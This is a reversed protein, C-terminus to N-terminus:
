RVATGLAPDPLTPAAHRPGSVAPFEHRALHVAGRIGASEIQEMDLGSVMAAESRLADIRKRLEGGVSLPDREVPFKGARRLFKEDHGRGAPPGPLESGIRARYVADSPSGVAAFDDEGGRPLGHFATEPSNGNGPALRNGDRGRQMANGGRINRAPLASTQSEVLGPGVGVNM